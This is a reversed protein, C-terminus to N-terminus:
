IFFSLDIVRRSLGCQFDRLPCLSQNKTAPVLGFAVNALSRQDHILCFLCSWDHGIFAL